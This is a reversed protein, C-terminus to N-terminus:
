TAPPLALRVTEDSEDCVSERRNSHDETVRYIRAGLAFKLRGIAYYARVGLTERHESARGKSHSIESMSEISM